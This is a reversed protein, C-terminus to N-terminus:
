KPIVVYGEKIPDVKTGNVRVEFHLHPGTSNGTSGIYGLITKGGVVVDKKRALIKSMHAYLTVIQRGKSDKGHNIMCYYGYGGGWESTYNAYYVEGDAAAYIPEGYAKGNAIDIGGHLKGWRQGYGSSIKKVTPVPWFMTGTTYQTQDQEALEKLMKQINEELKDAEKDLASQNKEYTNLQKELDKKLKAAAVYLSDLEAKKADAVAKEAEVAVKTDNLLNKDSELGVKEEDLAKIEAELDEILKQDNRSINEMLKSKLLYDTYEDVNFLMQLASLNGIKALSRIRVQLTKFDKEIEAEREAIQQERNLIEGDKDAILDGLKGILDESLGIQEEVVSIQKNLADLKEQQEELSDGAQEMKKKLEAQKKELEQQQKKLADLEAQSAAEATPPISMPAVFLLVVLLVIVIRRVISTKKRTQKEM